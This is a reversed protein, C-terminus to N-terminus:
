GKNSARIVQDLANAILYRTVEQSRRAVVSWIPRKPMKVQSAFKFLPRAEWKSHVLGDFIFAGQRLAARVTLGIPTTPFPIALFQRRKPQITLGEEHALAGPWDSEVVVSATEGNFQVARVKVSRYYRGTRRQLTRGSLEERIQTQLEQGVRHLGSRVGRERLSGPLKSLMETVQTVNVHVKFDAM